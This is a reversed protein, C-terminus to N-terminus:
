IGARSSLRSVDIYYGRRSIRRYVGHIQGASELERRVRRVTGVSVRQLRAVENNALIPGDATRLFTEIVGRRRAYENM